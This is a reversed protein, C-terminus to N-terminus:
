QSNQSQELVEKANEILNRLNKKSVRWKKNTSDWVKVTTIEYKTFFSLEESFEINYDGEKLMMPLNRATM